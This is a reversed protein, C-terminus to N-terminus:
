SSHSSNTLKGQRKRNSLRKSIFLLFRRAGRPYYPLRTSMSTSNNLEIWSRFHCQASANDFSRRFTLFSLRFPYVPLSRKPTMKVQMRFEPFRLTPSSQDDAVVIVFGWFRDAEIAWVVRISKGIWYNQCIDTLWHFLWPALRSNKRGSTECGLWWSFRWRQHVPPAYVSAVQSRRSRFM